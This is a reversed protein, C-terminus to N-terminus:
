PEPATWARVSPGDPTAFPVVEPQRNGTALPRCSGVAPGARRIACSACQVPPPGPAGFPVFQVGDAADWPLGPRVRFPVVQVGYPLRTRRASHCLNCVTPRMGRFDPGCGSHCLKCVTHPRTRRASHCVKCVTLRMEHFDRGRGSHCLKCVTHSAPGAHRIACSACRRACRTSTRAPGPIACSACRIPRVRRVSHCVKCVTPRMGRFNTANSGFCLINHIRTSLRLM